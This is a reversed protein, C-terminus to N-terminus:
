RQVEDISVIEYETPVHEAALREQLRQYDDHVRQDAHWTRAYYVKVVGAQILEKSCAFCPQDTTYVTTGDTSAGFRGATLLANSEAHVCICLDYHTGSEFRDRDNCRLCGGDLCNPLGQPTGNYGTAIVRDGKVLIAGVSRGRCNARRAATFALALYYEDRDPLSTTAADGDSM